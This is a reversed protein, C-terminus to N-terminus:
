GIRLVVGSGTIVSSSFIMSVPSPPKFWFMTLSCGIARMFAIRTTEFFGSSSRRTAVQILRSSLESVALM